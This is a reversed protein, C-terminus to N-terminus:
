IGITFYYLIQHSINLIVISKDIDVLVYSSLVICDSLTIFPDLVHVYTHIYLLVIRYIRTYVYM